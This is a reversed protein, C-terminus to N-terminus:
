YLTSKIQESTNNRQRMGCKYSSPYILTSERRQHLASRISVYPDTSNKSIYDTFPMIESRKHVIRVASYSTKQYKKMYHKLPNLIDDAVVVDWVDRANTSGLIPLVIYPGSSVGYHALTSGFTQPKHSIGAETALDYLGGIGFTTNIAFRWFSSMTKYMNGQLSYNVTTLPEYINDVFDGVRNRAYDDVFKGYAKAVPKLIIYDLFSNFYFIKRNVSEFPDPLDNCETETPDDLSYDFNYAIEDAFAPFNCSLLLLITIFLKM